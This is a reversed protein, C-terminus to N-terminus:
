GEMGHKLLSITNKKTFIIFNVLTVALVVMCTFGFAVVLTILFNTWTFVVGIGLMGSLIFDLLYVLAYSIGYAVIIALVAIIGIEFFMINFIGRNKVGYASIIGYYNSKKIIMFRMSFIINLVLSCIIALGVTVMVGTLVNGVITVTSAMALGYDSGSTFKLLGAKKVLDEAVTKSTMYDSMYIETYFDMDGVAYLDKYVDSDVSMIFHSPRLNGTLKYYNDSLIGVVKMNYNKNRIKISINEGLINARLGFEKLFANSLIIENDTVSDIGVTMINGDIWRYNAEAKANSSIINGQEYFALNGSHLSVNATNVSNSIGGDYAIHECQYKIGNITFVMSKLGNEREYYAYNNIHNINDVTKIKDITKENLLDYNSTYYYHGSRYSYVIRQSEEELAITYATFVCLIIVMIVISIMVKVSSFKRSLINKWAMKM